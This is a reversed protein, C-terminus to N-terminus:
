RVRNLTLQILLFIRRFEKLRQGESSCQRQFLSQICLLCKNFVQCIFLLHLPLSHPLYVTASSQFALTLSRATTPSFLLGAGSSNHFFSRCLVLCFLFTMPFELIKFWKRPFHHHEEQFRSSLLFVSAQPPAPSKAQALCFETLPFVMILILVTVVVSYPLWVRGPVCHLKLCNSM